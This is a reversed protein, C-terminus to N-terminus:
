IEMRNHLFANNIDFEPSILEKMRSFSNGGDEEECQDTDLQRLVKFLNEDENTGNGMTMAEDLNNRKFVAAENLELSEGAIEGDMFNRIKQQGHHHYDVM